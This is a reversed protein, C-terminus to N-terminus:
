RFCTDKFSAQWKKNFVPIKHDTNHFDILKATGKTTAAQAIASNGTSNTFTGIAPTAVLTLALASVLALKNKKM